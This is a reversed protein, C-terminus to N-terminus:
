SAGEEEAPPAPKKEVVRAAYTALSHLTISVLYFQLPTLGLAQLVGTRMEEPLAAWTSGLLLVLYQVQATGYKWVQGADDVLKLKM